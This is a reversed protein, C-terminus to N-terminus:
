HPHDGIDSSLAWRLEQPQDETRIELIDVAAVHAAVEAELLPIRRAFSQCRGEGVLARIQSFHRLSNKAGAIRMMDARDHCVIAGKRLYRRGAQPAATAASALACVFLVSALTRALHPSVAV